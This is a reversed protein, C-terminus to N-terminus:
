KKMMGTKGKEMMMQGQKVMMEGMQMILEGQKMTMQSKMEDSMHMGEMEEMPTCMMTMMGGMMGTPMCMMMGGKMKEKETESGIASGTFVILMMSIFIIAARNTKM